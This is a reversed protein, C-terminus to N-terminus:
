KDLNKWFMGSASVLTKGADKNWAKCYWEPLDLVAADCYDFLQEVPILLNCADTYTRNEEKNALIREKTLHEIRTRTMSPTNVLEKLKATSCILMKHGLALATYTSEGTVIWGDRKISPNEHNFTFLEINIKGSTLARNMRKVSITTRQTSERLTTMKGGLTWRDGLILDIDRDINDKDFRHVRGERNFWEEGMLHDAFQDTSHFFSGTHALEERNAWKAVPTSVATNHLDRVIRSSNLADAVAYEAKTSIRKGKVAELTNLSTVKAM